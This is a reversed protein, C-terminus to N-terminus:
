GFLASWAKKALSSAAIGGVLGGVIGGVVTGAPGALSGLAAGIEAGAWAGGVSSGAQAVGNGVARATKWGETLDKRNKDKEAQDNYGNIFSFGAGIVGLKGGCFKTVKGLFGAAKTLKSSSVVFESVKTSMKSVTTGIKSNWAFDSVATTAKSVVSSVKSTYSRLGSIFKTDRFRRAWGPLIWNKSNKMYSSVDWYTWKKFPDIKVFRGKEGRPAYRSISVRATTYLMKPLKYLNLGTAAAHFAGGSFDFYKHYLKDLVFGTADRGLEWAGTVLDSLDTTIKDTVITGSGAKRFSSSVDSMWQSDLGNEALYDEVPVSIPTGSIQAWSCQSTFGSWASQLPGVM